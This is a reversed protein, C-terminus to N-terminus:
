NDRKDDKNDNISVWYKPLWIWTIVKYLNIELTKKINSEGHLIGIEPSAWDVKKADESCPFIVTEHFDKNDLASVIIHNYKNKGISRNIKYLKVVGSFMNSVDSIFTAIKQGSCNACVWGDLQSYECYKRDYEKRCLVCTVMKNNM